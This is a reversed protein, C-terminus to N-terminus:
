AATPKQFDSLKLCTDVWEKVLPDHSSVLIAAGQSAVEDLISLVRYASKADLSATPEDLILLQPDRALARAIGARQREGGSCNVPYANDLHGIDLMDLLEVIRHNYKQKQGRPLTQLINEGITLNPLMTSDQNLYGINARRWLTRQSDPLAYIDPYDVWSVKGGDPALLGASTKLLTTKGSGSRGELLIKECNKLSYSVNEYIPNKQPDWCHSISEIKLIKRMHILSEFM